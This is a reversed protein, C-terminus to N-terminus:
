TPPRPNSDRRSRWVLALAAGATGLLVDHESSQEIRAITIEALAIREADAPHGLRLLTYVISAWGIGIGIGIRTLESDDVAHEVRDIIARAVGQALDAARADGTVRAWADLFLAIGGDGDYLSLGTPMLEYRRAESSYRIAIWTPAGGALITASDMVRQAIQGAARMLEADSIERPMSRSGALAETAHRQTERRTAFSAAIFGCQRDLNADSLRQLRRAVNDAGTVSFFDTITDSGLSLDRTTTNAVFRPIDFEEMAELEAALVRTFPSDDSTLFGRSVRDLLISHEAGDQLYEPRLSYQMLGAYGSTSRFLFRVPRADFRSLLPPLEARGDIISLYAERFGHVLSDVFAAPDGVGAFPVNGAPQLAATRVVSTMRDTNVEEWDIRIGGAQKEVAGLGSVDLCQGDAKLEWRPLLGTHFVTDALQAVVIDDVASTPSAPRMPPPQFLMEVDVLVPHEGSAIVNEYHLDSGELAHVAALLMGARRYYRALEDDSACPAHEIFEVWGYDGCDLTRPHRLDISVRRGLWDLFEGFAIDVGVNKPKYLVRAGNELTIVHVSRGGAHADSWGGTISRVDGPDNGRLLRDVIAARDTDFRRVVEAGCAVWREVARAILRALVPYTTFFSRFGDAKMTQVFREYLSRAPTAALQLRARSLPSSHTARFISFELQMAAAGLMLMTQVLSTELSRLPVDDRGLEERLRRRAVRVIPVLLEAFPRAESVGGDDDDCPGEAAIDGLIETWQPLSWFAPPDVDGLLPLMADPLAGARMLRIRLKEEDGDAVIRSWKTWRTAAAGTADGRFRDRLRQWLPTARIAVDTIWSEGDRTV